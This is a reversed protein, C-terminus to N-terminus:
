KHKVAYVVVDDLFERHRRLYIKYKSSISRISLPVSWIHDQVHYICIALKPCYKRLLNEAGELSELEFGEVDMKIYTPVYSGVIDDLSNILITNRGIEAISSSITGQSNFRVTHRHSGVGCAQANLEGDFSIRFEDICRQLKAYNTPDPEVGIYAKCRGRTLSHLKKLNDGQFAGCDIFVEDYSLCIIDKPFYTHEKSVAPLTREPFPSTVSEIFFAFDERSRNDELLDFAKKIQEVQAFAQSPLSISYYPLFTSAYKWFYSLFYAIHKVNQAELTKKIAKFEREGSQNFIAIVFIANDGWRKAGEEISVCPINEILETKVAMGADIIGLPEIGIKRMGSLMKRGLDGFGYIVIRSHFEGAIDDFWSLESNAYNRLRDSILQHFNGAIM